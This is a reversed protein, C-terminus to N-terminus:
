SAESDDHCPRTQAWTNVKFYAAASAADIGECALEAAEPAWAALGDWLWQPPPAVATGKGVPVEWM